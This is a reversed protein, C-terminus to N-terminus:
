TNSDHAHALSFSTARRIYSSLRRMCIIDEKKEQDSIINLADLLKKLCQHNGKKISLRIAGLIHNDIHKTLFIKHVLDDKKEQCSVSINIASFIVGLCKHNGNCSMLRILPRPLQNESILIKQILLYAHVYTPSYTLLHTFSFDSLHSLCLM